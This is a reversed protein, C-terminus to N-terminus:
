IFFEIICLTHTHTSFHAMAGLFMVLTVTTICDATFCLLEHMALLILPLIQFVEEEEGKEEEQFAEEEEEEGKEGEEEEEERRM